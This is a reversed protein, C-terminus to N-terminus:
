ADPFECSEYQKVLWDRIRQVPRSSIRLKDSISISAVKILNDTLAEYSSSYTASEESTRQIDVYLMNPYEFWIRSTIDARPLTAAAAAVIRSDISSTVVFYTGPSDEHEQVRLMPNGIALSQWPYVRIFFDDTMPLQLHELSIFRFSFGDATLSVLQVSAECEVYTHLEESKVWVTARLLV